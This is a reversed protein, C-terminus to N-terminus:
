REPLTIWMPSSWALQGDSQQVRVYYYSEGPKADMDAWHIEISATGPQSSFVFTNNRIIEVKAVPATGEIRVDLKPRGLSSLINWHGAGEHARGVRKNGM